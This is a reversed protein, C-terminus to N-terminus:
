KQYMFWIKQLYNFEDHTEDFDNVGYEFFIKKAMKLSCNLCNFVFDPTGCFLHYLNDQSKFYLFDLNENTLLVFLHHNSADSKLINEQNNEFKNLYINGKFEFTYELYSNGYLFINKSLWESEILTLANPVPIAIWNKNQLFKTSISWDNNLFYSFFENSNQFKM